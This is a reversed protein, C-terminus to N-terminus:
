RGEYKDRLREYKAVEHLSLSPTLQQLARAIDAACVVVADGAGDAAPEAAGPPPV